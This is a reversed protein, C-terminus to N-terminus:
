RFYLPMARNWNYSFASTLSFIMNNIKKSVLLHWATKTDGLGLSFFFGFFKVKELFHPTCFCFTVKLLSQKTLACLRIINKDSLVREKGNSYIRLPKNLFSKALSCFAYLKVHAVTFHSFLNIRHVLMGFSLALCKSRYRVSNSFVQLRIYDLENEWSPIPPEPVWAQEIIM